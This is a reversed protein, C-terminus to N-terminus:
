DGEAQVTGQHFVVRWPGGERRRWVSSRLVTRGPERTRYTLLIAGDALRSAVVDDTVPPPAEDRAMVDLISARDWVRGSAGFERFEPDLLEAAVSPTRRVAPHQLRLERDIVDTVDSDGTM